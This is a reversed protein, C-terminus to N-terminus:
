TFDALLEIWHKVPVHSAGGLHLQCGINATVIMDPNGISLDQLKNSRLQKSLKPQFISYTGASGCCLHNNQTQTLVVGQQQLIDRVSTPLKMGHQQTCPCHVAVKESLGSLDFSSLDEHQLIDAIDRSLASVQKAKESYEADDRLLYGYEQMTVGCGSATIAIAEAGAEVYPWLADINARAKQLGKAHANLHLELAGCCGTQQVPQLHIGLKYLVKAAAKDTNPAAGAQVCGPLSLMVRSHTQSASKLPVTTIVKEMVPVHGKLFAPLWSRVLAGFKLVPGIRRRYPLIHCMGWRLLRQGISRPVQKEVAMRGLDLLHSYEVGSPCTTECSRCTLCRDLHDRTQATVSNGEFMSKMLYIRGRPSDREDGLALYTPCTATCFGCHVCAALIEKAPQYRADNNYLPAFETKMILRARFIGLSKIKFIFISLDVFLKSWFVIRSSIKSTSPTTCPHVVM